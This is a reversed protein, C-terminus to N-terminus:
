QEHIVAEALADITPAFCLLLVSFDSLLQLQQECMELYVGQANSARQANHSQQLPTMRFAEIRGRKCFAKFDLVANLLIWL